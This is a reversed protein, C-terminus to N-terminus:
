SFHLGFDSVSSDTGKASIGINGIASALPCPPTRILKYTIPTM